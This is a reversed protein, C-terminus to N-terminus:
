KPPGPAPKPFLLNHFWESLEDFRRMANLELRVFEKAMEPSLQDRAQRQRDIIKATTTYAEAVKGIASFLDISLNFDV